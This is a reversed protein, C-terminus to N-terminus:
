VEAVEEEEPEPEPEIDPEPEPDPENRKDILVWGNAVLNDICGKCDFVKVKTTVENGDEDTTVVDEYVPEETYRDFMLYTEKSHATVENGWVSWDKEIIIERRLYEM